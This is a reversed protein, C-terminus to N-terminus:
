FKLMLKKLIVTISGCHMVAVCLPVSVCESLLKEFILSYKYVLSVKKLLSKETLIWDMGLKSQLWDQLLCPFSKWVSVM